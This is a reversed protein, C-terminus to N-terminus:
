IKQGLGTPAIKGGQFRDGKGVEKQRKRGIESLNERVNVTWGYKKLAKIQDKNAYIHVEIEDSDAQSQIPGVDLVESRLLQSLCDRDPVYLVTLFRDDPDSRRSRAKISKDSRTM